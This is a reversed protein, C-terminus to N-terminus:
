KVKKETESEIIKREEKLKAGIKLFLFHFNNIKLFKNLEM